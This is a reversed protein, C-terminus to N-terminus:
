RIHSVQNFSIDLDMHFGDTSVSAAGQVQGPWLDLNTAHLGNMSLLPESQVQNPWLDLNTQFSSAPSGFDFSILNEAPPQWPTNGLTAPQHGAPINQGQHIINRQGNEIPSATQGGTGNLTLADYGHPIGMTAGYRTPGSLLPRGNSVWTAPENGSGYETTVNGAPPPLGSSGNSRGKVGFAGPNAFPNGAPWNATLTGPTPAPLSWPTALPQPTAGSNNTAFRSSSSPNNDLVVVPITGANLDEGRSTSFTALSTIPPLQQGNRRSLPPPRNIRENTADHGARDSQPDDDITQPRGNSGTESRSELATPNIADHAQEQNQELRGSSDHSALGNGPANLSFPDNRNPGRGPARSNDRDPNEPPPFATSHETHSATGTPPGQPLVGMPLPPLASFGNSQAEVVFAEQRILSNDTSWNSTFTGPIPAPVMPWNNSPALNRAAFGSRFHSWSGENWGEGRPTGSTVVAIPPLRQSDGLSISVLRNSQENIPNQLTQGGPLGHNSATRGLGFDNGAAMGSRSVVLGAGHTPGLLYGNGPNPAAHENGQGTSGQPSTDENNPGHEAATDAGGNWDVVLVKQARDSQSWRNENNRPCPSFSDGIHSSGGSPAQRRQSGPTPQRHTLRALPRRGAKPTGPKRVRQNDSLSRPKRTSQSRSQKSGTHGGQISRPDHTGREDYPVFARTSELVGNFHDFLVKVVENGSREQIGEPGWVESSKKQIASKIPSLVRTAADDKLPMRADWTQRSLQPIYLLAGESGCEEIVRNYVRGAHLFERFHEFSLDLITESVLGSSQFVAVVEAKRTPLQSRPPLLKEIVRSFCATLIRWRIDNVVQQDKLRVMSLIFGDLPRTIAPLSAATPCADGDNSYFDAPNEAWRWVLRKVHEELEQVHPRGPERLRQSVRNGPANLFTKWQQPVVGWFTQIAELTARDALLRRKGIVDQGALSDKSILKAIHALQLSVQAGM